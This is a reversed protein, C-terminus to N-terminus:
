DLLHCEKEREKLFAFLSHTIHKFSPFVTNLWHTSWIMGM